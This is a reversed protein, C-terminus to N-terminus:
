VLGRQNAYTAAETRNAAGTKAFINAVHRVVTYRSLFLEDAIKQNSNGATVLRLVEAERETLGDPLLVATSSKNVSDSVDSTTLRESHKALKQLHPKMGLETAIVVAEDRLTNAKEQDGPLARDLLLEIYDTNLWVIGPRDGLKHLYELGAEFAEVAEDTRGIMNLAPAVFQHPCHFPGRRWHWDKPLKYGDLADSVMKKNNSALGNAGRLYAIWSHFHSNKRNHLARVVWDLDIPTSGTIRAVVVDSMTIWASSSPRDGLQRRSEEVMQHVLEDALVVDGQEALSLVKYMLLRPEDPDIALGEELLEDATAWDGSVLRLGAMVSLGTAINFRNRTRRAASLAEAAMREARVYEAISLLRDAFVEKLVFEARDDGLDSALRIAGSVMEEDAAVTGASLGGVSSLSLIELRLRDNDFRDAIEQAEHLPSEGPAQSYRELQYSRSLATLLFGHTLSGQEALPLARILLEVLGVTDHVPPFYTQAVELASENEGAEVYADFALVLQDVAKQLESRALIQLLARALGHHLRARLAQSASDSLADLAQEFHVAAQSPAHVALAHDGAISSYHVVKSSDGGVDAEHFHYALEAAHEDASDAYLSEMEVAIRIHLRVQAAPTIEELLTQRVLAHAFRYGGFSEGTEVLHAKTAEELQDIVEDDSRNKSIHDLMRYDFELGIVAANKLLDNVDESIRNLRKGVVERIGEPIRIPQNPRSENGLEYAIETVFFPNGQTQSAIIAATEPSASGPRVADILRRTENDELGRLTIRQYHRERNLEGLTESLPHRRSLETDRYTGVVIIRSDSVYRAFFQLLQLTTADAWHVDDFILMLPQEHSASQLFTSTAEFLRFRASEPDDLTPASAMEPEWTKLDPFLDTIIAARDEMSQIVASHDRSSAYSRLIQTWSWYPPAGTDEYARGWHVEFGDTKASEALEETLRTKGIGPDGAIMVLQGSGEVANELATTLEVLERERGVFPTGTLTSTPNSSDPTM